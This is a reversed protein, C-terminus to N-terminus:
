LGRRGPGPGAHHPRHRGRHGPGARDPLHLGRRRQPAGRGQGGREAGFPQLRVRVAPGGGELHPRRGAGLDARVGAGLGVGAAGSPRPGPVPRHLRRHGPQSRGRRGGGPPRRRGGGRRGAGGPPHGGTRGGDAGRGLRRGGAALPPDTHAVPLGDHPRRHPRWLGRQRVRAGDGAGGPQPRLRRPPGQLHRPRPRRSDPRRSPHGARDPGRRARHRGHGGGSGPQGPQAASAPV